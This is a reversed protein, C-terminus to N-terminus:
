LTLRLILGILFIKLLFEKDEQQKSLFVFALAASLGGILVAAPGNPFLLISVGVAILCLIIILVKNNM